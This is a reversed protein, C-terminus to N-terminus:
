RKYNAVTGKLRIEIAIDHDGQGRREAGADVELEPGGIPTVAILSGADARAGLTFEYEKALESDVELVIEFDIYIYPYNGSKQVTDRISEVIGRVLRRIPKVQYPSKAM